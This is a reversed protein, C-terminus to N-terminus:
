DKNFTDDLVYEKDRSLKSIQSLNHQPQQLLDQLQLRSYHQLFILNHLPNVKLHKLIEKLMKLLHKHLEKLLHVEEILVTIITKTPMLM